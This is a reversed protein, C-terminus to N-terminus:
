NPIPPRLLLGEGPLVLSTAADAQQPSDTQAKLRSHRYPCLVWLNKADRMSFFFSIRTYLPFRRHQLKHRSGRTGDHHVKSFLRVGDERCGSILYNFIAALRGKVV